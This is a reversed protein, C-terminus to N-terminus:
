SNLSTAEFVRMLAEYEEHCDHCKELHRKVFPLLQAVDEGRAEFEVYQDLLEFVEDCAIEVEDTNEVMQLLKGMMSGNRHPAAEQRSAKKGGVLLNIIRKFLNDESM